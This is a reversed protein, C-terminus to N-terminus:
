ELERGRTGPQRQACVASPHPAAACAAAEGEAIPCSRRSSARETGAIPTAQASDRRRLYLRQGTRDSGAIVLTSGDPSFAVSAGLPARSVSVGEPLMTTLHVPQTSVSTPRWSWAAVGALAVIAAALVSTLAMATRRPPQASVLPAVGVRDSSVDDLEIRADGIHQLRRRRDSKASEGRESARRMLRRKAAPGVM